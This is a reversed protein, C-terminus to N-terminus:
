WCVHRGRSFRAVADEICRLFAQDMVAIVLGGHGLDRFVHAHRRSVQIAIKCVLFFDGRFACRAAHVLAEFSEASVDGIRSFTGCLFQHGVGPLQHVVAVRQGALVGLYALQHRGDHALAGRQHVFLEGHM